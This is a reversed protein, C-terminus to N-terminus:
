PQRQAYSRITIREPEVATPVPLVTQFVLSQGPALRARLSGRWTGTVIGATDFLDVVVTPDSVTFPYPNRITLEALWGGIQPKILRAATDVVDLPVADPLLDVPEFRSVISAAQSKWQDPVPATFQVGQAACVIPIVGSFEAIAQDDEDLIQIRVNGSRYVADSDDIYQALLMVRGGVGPVLSANWIAGDPRRETIPQSPPDIAQWTSENVPPEHLALMPLTAPDPTDPTVPPDPTDPSDPPDPTDPPTVVVPPTDSPDGNLMVLGVIVAVLGVAVVVGGIILANPSKKISRRRSALRAKVAAPDRPAAAAVAVAAAAQSVPPESSAPFAEATPDPADATADAATQPKLKDRLLEFKPEEAVGSAPQEGEIPVLKGSIKHQHECQTCTANAGKRVFRVHTQHKCEPCTILYMPM